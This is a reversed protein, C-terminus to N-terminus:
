LNFKKVFLLVATTPYHKDPLPKLSTDTLRLQIDQLEKCNLKHFQLPSFELHHVEKYPERIVTRLINVCSSGYYVPYIINTHVLVQNGLIDQRERIIQEPKQTESNEEVTPFLSIETSETFTYNKDLNLLQNLEGPLRFRFQKSSGEEFEVSLINDIIPMSIEYNLNTMANVVNELTAEIFEV